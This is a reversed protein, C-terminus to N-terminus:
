GDSLAEVSGSRLNPGPVPRPLPSLPEQLGCPAGPLLNAAPFHGAIARFSDRKEFLGSKLTGGATPPPVGGVRTTTRSTTGTTKM